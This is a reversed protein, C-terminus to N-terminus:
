EFMEFLTNGFTASGGPPRGLLDRLLIAQKKYNPVYFPLLFIAQTVPNEKLKDVM